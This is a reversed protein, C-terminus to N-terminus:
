DRAHPLVHKNCYTRNTALSYFGDVGCYLYYCPGDYNRYWMTFGRLGWAGHLRGFRFAHGLLHYTQPKGWTFAVIKRGIEHRITAITM